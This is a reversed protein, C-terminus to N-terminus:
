RYGILCVCGELGRECTHPVDVYVKRDSGVPLWINDSNTSFSHQEYTHLSMYHAQHRGDVQTFVKLSIRRNPKSWGIDVFIFLLIERASRPLDEPLDFDYVAKEFTIHGLPRDTTLPLPNWAAAPLTAQIHLCVVTCFAQYFSGMYVTVGTSWAM